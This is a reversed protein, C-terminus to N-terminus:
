RGHRFVAFALCSGGGVEARSSPAPTTDAAVLVRLARNAFGVLVQKVPETRPSRTPAVREPWSWLRVTCVGWSQRSVFSACAVRRRAASWRVCYQYIHMYVCKCIKAHKQLKSCIEATELMNRCNQPCIKTANRCCMKSASLMNQCIRATKLMNRCNQSTKLVNRCNQHCIKTANRCCMKSASPM